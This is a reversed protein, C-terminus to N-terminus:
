IVGRMKEHHRLRRPVLNVSHLMFSLDILQLERFRSHILFVWTGLPAARHHQVSVSVPRTYLSNTAFPSISFPSRCKRELRAM